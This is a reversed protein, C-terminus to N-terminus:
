YLNLQYVFHFFVPATFILSDVRDLVGGHGPLLRGTDKIGLDRKIASITVDGLFGFIGILLGSILSELHNFSTLWPSIIVAMLTTTVLGGFLGEATKRPSVKVIKKFQGILKGFIYQAIDNLETLFVLFLVLGANCAGLNGESTIVLLFGVHGLCFVTLMLGWNLTSVANIFNHTDGVLVMSTSLCFLAVLPIFIIFIEYNGNIIWFYQIPITLYLWMLVPRDVHRTPILSLFERLALFSLTAFFFLSVVPGLSIAMMFIIIMIWWTRVRLKLEKLDSSPKYKALILITISAICLSAIIGQLIIQIGQTM